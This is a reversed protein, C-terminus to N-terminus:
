TRDGKADIPAVREARASDVVSRDWSRDPIARPRMGLLAHMASVDAWNSSAPGPAVVFGDPSPRISDLLMRTSVAIGAGLNVVRFGTSAVTLSARVLDVLDDQHIYDRVFRDPESLSVPDAADARILRQVLSDPFAPGAVNFIRLALVSVGRDRAVLDAFIEESRQKSRAYASDGDLPAGESRADTADVGYVAGSSALVVRALGSAASAVALDIRENVKEVDDGRQVALHLMTTAGSRAVVDALRAADTLDISIDDPRAGPGHTRALSTVRGGRARLDSVVLRGIRGNGGTVVVSEPVASQDNTTM